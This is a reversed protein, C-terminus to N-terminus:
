PQAAQRRLELIRRHGALGASAAQVGPEVPDHRGASLSFAGRPLASPVPTAGRVRTSPQRSTAAARHGAAAEADIVPARVLWRPLQPGPPRAVQWTQVAFTTEILSPSVTPTLM